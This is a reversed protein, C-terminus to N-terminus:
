RVELDRDRHRASRKRLPRVAVQVVDRYVVDVANEKIRLVRYKQGIQQCATITPRGYRRWGEETFYFRVNRNIARNPNPMHVWADWMTENGFGVIGSKLFRLEKLDEETIDGQAQLNRLVSAYTEDDMEHILEIRRFM